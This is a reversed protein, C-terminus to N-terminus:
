GQAFTLFEARAQPEDRLVGLLCSTTLRGRSKIGRMQMCTHEAQIVVGIGLPQVHQQFTEAIQTTLREQTQLRKAFCHVLRPIKSLGVVRNQAPIYGLTATGHFPLLHHECLSFFPIHDVVILQDCPENFQVALLPAPDQHMGATLERWMQIVRRPTDHLGLRHPDEGIWALQSRVLGRAWHESWDKRQLLALPDADAQARSADTAM